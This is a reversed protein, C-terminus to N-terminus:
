IGSYKSKILKKLIKGTASKPFSKFFEVYKPCKYIPLKGKCFEIIEAETASNDENLILCAKIEEIKNDDPVGIVVAEKVKEFEMITSEIESPFVSFGGKKIVDFKKDIVYFFGNEDEMGIDGTYFWGKKLVKDTLEPHNKYGKMVNECQIMIEGVDNSSLVSNNEDATQMEIEKIPFGVSNENREIGIRSCSNIFLTETTGYCELLPIKFIEEFSKAVKVPCNNIGNVCLRLSSIEFKEQKYKQILLELIASVTFFLTINNNNIIKITDEINLRPQLTITAGFWIAPNLIIALSFPHFLPLVALFNDKPSISILEDCIKVVNSINKHTHIAGKPSGSTGSTYLVSSVDKEEIIIRKYRQHTAGASYQFGLEDKLDNGGLNVTQVDQELEKLANEVLNKFKNWYILYKTDSDELVFRIEEENYIVNIPLVIGGAKLIAFYSIVFEIINPFMLAILDGKVVGMKILRNTLRDSYEYLESYTLSRNESIVAVKDPNTNKNIELADVITKM